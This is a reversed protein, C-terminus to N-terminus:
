EKKFFSDTEFSSAETENLFVQELTLPSLQIDIPKLARLRREQEQIDGCVLMMAAKGEIKLKQHSIGEFTSETIESDFIVRARRLSSSVDEIACFMSLRKGGIIAIHDCLENLEALNHSSIVLACETEAMYELLLKKVMDRKQPDLGDFSEDLLMYKPTACLALIIEAQRQMGKSFSKIRKKTDLGFADTLKNFIKFDFSKYYGAYFAAMEKLNASDPFFLEDPVYFLRKRESNNDFSNEGSLTVSGSEPKYIGAAVKLLTTKGAGNYGVLGTVSCPEVAFSINEVATFDGFRKTVANFEIM